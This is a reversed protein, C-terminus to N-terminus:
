SCSPPEARSADLLRSISCQGPRVKAVTLKLGSGDSMQFFYQVVGKGFTREGFVEGRGNDQVRVL